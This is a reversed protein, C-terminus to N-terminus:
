PTHACMHLYYGGGTMKPCEEEQSAKEVYDSFIFYLEDDPMKARIEKVTPPRPDKQPPGAAVKTVAAEVVMDALEEESPAAVSITLSGQQHEAEVSNYTAAAAVLAQRDAIPQGSAAAAAATDEEAIDPPFFPLIGWDGDHVLGEQETETLAEDPPVPVQVDNGATPHNAETCDDM